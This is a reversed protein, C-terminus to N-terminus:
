GTVSVGMGGAGSICKIGGIDCFGLELAGGYLRVKVAFFADILCFNSNATAFPSIGGNQLLQPAM